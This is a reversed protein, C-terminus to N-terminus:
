QRNHSSSHQHGAVQIYINPRLLDIGQLNQVRLGEGASAVAVDAEVVDTGLLRCIYPSDGGGCRVLQATHRCALAKEMYRTRELATARTAVSMRNRAGGHAHKM